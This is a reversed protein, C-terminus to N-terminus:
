MYLRETGYTIHTARPIPRALVIDDCVVNQRKYLSSWVCVCLVGVIVCCVCPVCFM